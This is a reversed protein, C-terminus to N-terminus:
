KGFLGANRFVRKLDEQFASIDYNKTDTITSAEGAGIFLAALRALTQKGSGGVGVLLTHGGPLSCNRVIRMLHMVASDFLVLDMAKSPYEENHSTVVSQRVCPETFAVALPM